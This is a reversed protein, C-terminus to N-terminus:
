LYNVSMSSAQLVNPVVLLHSIQCGSTALWFHRISLSITGTSEASVKLPWKWRFRVLTKVYTLPIRRFSGRTPNRGRLKMEIMATDMGLFGYLHLQKM